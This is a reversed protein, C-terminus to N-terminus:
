DRGMATGRLYDPDDPDTIEAWRDANFPDYEVPEDPLSTAESRQKRLRTRGVAEALKRRQEGNLRAAGMIIEATQEGTMREPVPAAPPLTGDQVAGHDIAGPIRQNPWTNCWLCSWRLNGRANSGGGVRTDSHDLSGIRRGIPDWKTPHGQENSPRNEVALSGCHACRGNAEMLVQMVDDATLKVDPTGSMLRPRNAQSAKKQCWKRRQAETTAALYQDFTRYLPDTM